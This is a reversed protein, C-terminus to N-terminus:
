AAATSPEIRQVALWADLQKGATHPRGVKSTAPFYESHCFTGDAIRSRNEAALGHV